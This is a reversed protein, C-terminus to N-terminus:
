LREAINDVLEFVDSREIGVEGRTHVAECGCDWDSGRGDASVVLDSPVGGGRIAEGSPGSLPRILLLLLTLPRGCIGGSRSTVLLWDSREAWCSTRLGVKLTLM